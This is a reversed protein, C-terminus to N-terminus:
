VNGNRVKKSRASRERAIEVDDDDSSKRPILKLESKVTPPFTKINNNEPTSIDSSPGNDQSSTMMENSFPISSTLSSSSTLYSRSTDPPDVVVTVATREADTSVMVQSSTEADTFFDEVGESSLESTVSANNCSWLSSTTSNFSNTSAGAVNSRAWGRRHQRYSNIFAARRDQEDMGKNCLFVVCM